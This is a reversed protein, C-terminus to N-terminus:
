IKIINIHEEPKLYKKNVLIPHLIYLRPNTNNLIRKQLRTLRIDVFYFYEDSSLLHKKKCYKEMKRLRKNRNVLFRNHNIQALSAKNQTIYHVQTNEKITFSSRKLRKSGQTRLIPKRFSKVM